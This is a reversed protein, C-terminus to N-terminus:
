VRQTHAGLGTNARKRSIRTDEVVDHWPLERREGAIGCMVECRYQCIKTTTVVSVEEMGEDLLSPAALHEGMERLMEVVEDQPNLALVVQVDPNITRALRLLTRVAYEQHAPDLCAFPDDIVVVNSLHRGVMAYRVFFWALNVLAQEGYNIIGKLPLMGEAYRRPTALLIKGLEKRKMPPDYKVLVDPQAWRSASLAAAIEMFCTGIDTEIVRTLTESQEKVLEDRMTALIDAEVAARLLGSARGGELFMMMAKLVGVCETLDPLQNLLELQQDVCSIAKELLTAAEAETMVGFEPVASREGLVERALAIESLLSKLPSVQGSERTSMQKRLAIDRDIAASFEECLRLLDSSRLVALFQTSIEQLQRALARARRLEAMDSVAGEPMSLLQALFCETKAAVTQAGSIAKEIDNRTPFAQYALLRRAILDEANEDCVESGLASPPVRIFEDLRRYAKKLATGAHQLYLRHEDLSNAAQETRQALLYINEADVKKDCEFSRWAAALAQILAPYDQLSPPLAAADGSYTKQFRESSVDLLRKVFDRSTVNVNMGYPRLRAAKEAIRKDLTDLVHEGYGGLLGLLQTAREEEDETVINGSKQDLLFVGTDAILSGGSRPYVLQATIEEQGNHVLAEMTISPVGGDGLNVLTDKNVESLKGRVALQIAEVLSSKGSGNGGVIFTLEAFRGLATELARLKKVEITKLRLLKPGSQSGSSPALEDLVHNVMDIIEDGQVWRSLPASKSRQNIRQLLRKRVEGRIDRISAGVSERGLISRSVPFLPAFFSLVRWDYHGKLNIDGTRLFECYRRIADLLEASQNPDTPVTLTSIGIPASLSCTRLSQAGHLLIFAHWDWPKAGRSTAHLRARYACQSVHRLFDSASDACDQGFFRLVGLLQHAEDIIWADADLSLLTGVIVKKNGPAEVKGIEQSAILLFAETVRNAM